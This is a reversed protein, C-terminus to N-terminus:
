ISKVLHRDYRQLDVEPKQNPTTQCKPLDLAILMGLKSWSKLASGLNISGTESFVATM